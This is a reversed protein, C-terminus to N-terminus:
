NRKRIKRNDIWLVTIRGPDCVLVDKRIDLTDSFGKVEKKSVVKLNRSSIDLALAECFLCINLGLQTCFMM